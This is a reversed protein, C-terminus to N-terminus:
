PKVAQGPTLSHVGATVVKEGASVGTVSVQDDGRATVAVERLAVKNAAPDVIWVQTKGDQELLATEPLEIRPPVPRSLTAQVAIGPRFASPPDDLAFHVTRVPADGAAPDVSRVGSAAIKTAPDLAVLTDFKEGAMLRDALESPVSIVVERIDPRAITMVKRGADVAQGPEFYVATVVGNFDARLRTLSLQEQARQLEAQARTLNAAAAQRNQVILDFQAQPTINRETLRRQRTEEAKANALQAEASAVAAEANRVLITPISPDMAALEDGTKVSAGVDVPRSTMRGSVRFSFDESYRPQISGAFPGLTDRTRSEATTWLVPRVPPPAEAEKKCGALLCSALLGFLLAARRYAGHYM